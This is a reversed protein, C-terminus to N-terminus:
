AAATKFGNKEAMAQLLLHQISGLGPDAVIMGDLDQFSNISNAVVLASGEENAGAIITVPIQNNIHKLIAPPSGLYGIDVAGAAFADMQAPGASYGGASSAIANIGYQQYLSTGGGATANSAVLRAFQHLDGALYGVRVDTLPGSSPQVSAAQELFSTNAYRNVFDDVSSYGAANLKAMSTQDLAIFENTFNKLGEIFSPSLQDVFKIHDLSSAVVDTSVASFSAGMQLLLTYNESGPNAVAEAIWKNAEMDAKLFAKVAEPNNQAFENSTVIVCCPHNPWIEDSWYLVKAKGDLVAQSGYPEWGVGGAVSGQAIADAQLRPALTTFKVTGKNDDPQMMSWALVAVLVVAVVAVVAAIVYNRKM